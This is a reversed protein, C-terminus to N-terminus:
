HLARSPPYSSRGRVPQVLARCDRTQAAVAATVSATPQLPPPPVAPVRRPASPCTEPSPHSCLVPVALSPCSRACAPCPLPPEPPPPPLFQFSSSHNGGEGKKYILQVVSPDESAWSGGIDLKAVKAFNKDFSSEM